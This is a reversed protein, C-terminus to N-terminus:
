STVEVTFDGSAVNGATGYVLTSGNFIAMSYWDPSAFRELDEIHVQLTLEVDSGRFSGTGELDAVEGANSHCSFIYVRADFREGSPTVHRWAGTGLSALYDTSHAHGSARDGTEITADGRLRCGPGTDASAPLGTLSLTACAALGVMFLRVRRGWMITAPHSM